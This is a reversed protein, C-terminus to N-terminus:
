EEFIILEHASFVITENSRGGDAILPVTGSARPCPIDLALLLDTLRCWAAKMELPLSHAVGDVIGSGEAERQIQSSVLGDNSM